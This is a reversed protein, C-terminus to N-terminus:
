GPEQRLRGTGTDEERLTMPENAATRIVPATAYESMSSLAAPSGSTTAAAGTAGVVVGGDVVEVVVVLLEVVVVRGVRSATTM